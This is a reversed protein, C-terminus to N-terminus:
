KQEYCAYNKTDNGCTTEGCKKCSECPDQQETDVLKGQNDVVFQSAEVMMEKKVINSVSLYLGLASKLGWRTDYGCPRGARKIPKLALIHAIHYGKQWQIKEKETMILSGLYHAQRHAASALTVHYCVSLGLKEGEGILLISALM